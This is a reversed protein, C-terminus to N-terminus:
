NDTPKDVREVFFNCLAGVRVRHKGLSRFNTTRGHVILLVQIM